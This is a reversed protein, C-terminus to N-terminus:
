VKTAGSHREKTLAFFLEALSLSNFRLDSLSQNEFNDNPEQGDWLRRLYDLVKHHAQPDFEPTEAPVAPAAQQSGPTGRKRFRHFLRM